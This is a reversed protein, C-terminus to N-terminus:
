ATGPIADSHFGVPDRFFSTMMSHVEEARWYIMYIDGNEIVALKSGPVLPQVLHARQCIDREYPGTLQVLLAPVKILPLRSAADYQWLAQFAYPATARAKIADNTWDNIFEIEEETLGEYPIANKGQWLRMSARQWLRMLHSGDQELRMIPLSRPADPEEAGGMAQDSIGMYAQREAESELYPYGSMIVAEVLEPWGAAIEGAVAAGTHHGFIRVKEVGAAEMGDVISQAMDIATFGDPLPDSDGFGPFDYVFVQYDAALLPLLRAFSRWSRASQHLLVVSEGQGATAYHLQGFRTDAYGRRIARTERSM